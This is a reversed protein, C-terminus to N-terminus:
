AEERVDADAPPACLAKSCKAMMIHGTITSIVVALALVLFGVRLTSEVDFCTVGGPLKDALTTKAVAQNIADCKDGVIFHAFERLELIGALITVCFVDLGSWANFVQATLLWQKQARRSLPATWLVMLIVHYAVVVITTFLFYVGALILIGASDPDPNSSRIRTGLSFVSFPRHRAEEGLAYGAMGLFNFNFTELFTGCLVLLLSVGISITPGHVDLPSSCLVYCLRRKDNDEEVGFEGLKHAYRHCATTIHGAILSLFTAALFTFFGLDPQVHVNFAAEAGAEHFIDHLLKPGDTTARLDFNFAVMCLVMFFTDVLSWKGFADLFNLLGQRKAVSLRSPPTFWCVLMLIPKIYPWLGSFGLILFALGYVKGQWMDKISGILSFQFTPPLDVVPRGNATVSVVVGAGIGSNSSVFMLITAAMLLPLGWRMYPPTRPHFALARAPMMASLVAGGGGIEAVLSTPGTGTSTTVTTALSMDQMQCARADTKKSKISLGLCTALSALFCVAFAALASNSLMDNSFDNEPPPCPPPASLFSSIKENVMHLGQATLISHGVQQIAEKYAGLLFAAASNLMHDVDDELDGSGPRPTLTTRFSTAGFDAQLAAAADLGSALCGVSALQDTTFTGLRTANLALFAKAALSLESMKLAVAFEEQLETGGVPGRGPLIGLKLQLQLDLEELEMGFSLEQPKPSYIDMATWTNLHSVSANKVTINIQALKDILLVKSIPLMLLSEASLNADAGLAKTLLNNASHPSRSNGLVKTVINHILEVGSNKGLDVLDKQPDRVVPTPPPTPTDKLMERITHSVNQLAESGKGNIATDLETCILGTLRKNLASQILPKLWDLVSGPFDLEVKISGACDKAKIATPLPPQLSDAVITLPGGLVGDKVQAVVDGDFHVSSIMTSQANWHLTCHISLGSATINLGGYVAGTHVHVLAFNTCLGNSITFNFGGRVDSFVPIQVRLNWLWKELWSQSRVM